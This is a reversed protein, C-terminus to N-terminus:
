CPSWAAHVVDPAVLEPASANLRQVWAGDQVEAYGQPTMTSCKGAFCFASSDPAWFSMSNAYSEFNGLVDELFIPSPTFARWRLKEGSHINVVNWRCRLAMGRLNRFMDADGTPSTLYLVQMRWHMGM